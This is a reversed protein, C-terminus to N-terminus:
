VAEFIQGNSLHEYGPVLPSHEICAFAAATVEFFSLWKSEGQSSKLAQGLFTGMTEVATAWAHQLKTRIQLEIQLGDFYPVRANKYRYVLHISRYGTAQPKQIYDYAHVLQHQFQSSLYLYELKRVNEITDVVARLGVIDHMRALKMNKYRRLKTIVSPARKLRQAVIANHDINKLRNRLTSQFTNVPYGHCARWNSLVANAWLWDDLEDFKVAGNALPIVLQGPFALIMGAKNVQSRTYEPTSWEM